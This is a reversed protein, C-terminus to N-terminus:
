RGLELQVTALVGAASAGEVVTGLKSGTSWVFAKGGAGRKGKRGAKKAMFRRATYRM